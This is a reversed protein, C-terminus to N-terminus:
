EPILTKKFLYKQTKFFLIKSQDSFYINKSTNNSCIANICTKKFLIKLNESFM